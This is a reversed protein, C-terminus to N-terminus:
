EDLTPLLDPLEALRSITLGGDGTSSRGVCITRAGAQRAWALADPSDDVVIAAAPDVGADAFIREYYAPGSKLTNVLDPGYLRRFWARVGMGGLYGALDTSPEGSATYLPHRRGHLTRLAGVVGPLASRVRATVAATAALALAYAEDAPPAQVGVRACMGPLWDLLYRREFDRYDRAADLRARWADPAFLAVTFDRNAEAWAEPTGGLRPAFYEGVLRRWQAGRLAPDNMVGGDDVFLAV